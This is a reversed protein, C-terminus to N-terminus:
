RRRSAKSPRRVIGPLDIVTLDPMNPAELEIVIKYEAEFTTGAGRALHLSETLEEIKEGLEEPNAIPGAAKPQRAALCYAKAKWSTSVKKMRLETACKTVLGSGRPFPVGSIAELM